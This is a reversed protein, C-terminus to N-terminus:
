QFKINKKIIEFIKHLASQNQRLKHGANKLIILEKPDKAKEYLDYANKVNILDDKGGHLIFKPSSIHAIWRIPMYEKFESLIEKDYDKKIQIGGTQSTLHIGLRLDKLRADSLNAPCACIILFKPYLKSAQDQHAVLYITPITGMSFALYAIQSPAVEKLNGIYESVIELDKVWNQISFFGGSGKCGSFNFIISVVGLAAIKRGLIDYGKEEVPLPTSPLGHAIIVAPHQKDPTPVFLMGNLTTNNRKLHIKKEYM